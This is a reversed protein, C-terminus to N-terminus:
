KIRKELDDLVLVWEALSGADEWLEKLESNLKIRKLAQEFLPTEVYLLPENEGLWEASEEPFDISPNGKFAAYYEIAALCECAEDSDLYETEEIGTVFLVKEKLVKKGQEEVEALFDLATDNEFNKNGWAGM